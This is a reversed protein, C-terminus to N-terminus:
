IPNDPFEELYKEILQKKKPDTPEKGLYKFEWIDLQDNFSYDTNFWDTYDFHVTFKGNRELSITFSYWLDQNHNKFVGRMEKGLDYLCRRKEKFDKQNVEFNYPIEWSYNFVKEEKPTNYFFYTGGGTDSVQAYFYFKEWEEPIMENVKEAINQYISQLEKEM